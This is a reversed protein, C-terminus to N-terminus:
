LAGRYELTVAPKCAGEEGLDEVEVLLGGKVATEEGLQRTAAIEGGVVAGGVAEGEFVVFFNYLYNFM